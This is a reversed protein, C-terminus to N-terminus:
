IDLNLKIHDAPACGEIHLLFSVVDPPTDELEIVVRWHRIDSEVLAAEAVKQLSRQLKIRDWIQKEACAQLWSRLRDAMLKQAAEIAGM